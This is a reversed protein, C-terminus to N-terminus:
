EVKKGILVNTNGTVAAENGGGYVNGIINAGIVKHTRNAPNTESTPTEFVIDDGVASGINVHTNGIVEAANGGGYVNNIAGIGSTFPPLYISCTKDDIIRGNEDEVFGGNETRRFESFSLTKNGTHTNARAVETAQNTGFDEGECVNINVYTDGTVKASVGYGGGYVDGISTFSRLNLTPGQRETTSGAKLPGTYPAQNGGGYLQGITILHCGTEEINVTITGNITGSVNNGGFVRDFNGNTINLTVDNHIDANEAGGYANKLGPICAMDLRSEGDMNASKGGGYAEDVHFECSGIDELMTVAIQRVNGKTNSGGYVRHIRGGLIDVKAAGSGYGYNAARNEPTDTDGVINDVYEYFGVNAGPNDREVGNITIRDKGNGGGFVEEIEYTGLVEVWTGPTSAANGGGYVQRISTLDCGDIIVHTRGNVLDTPVYASLNGGGYVADLEYHHQEDDINDFNESTTRMHGAYGQTKQVHVTVAGKPTGNLNNCGFICGKVICDDPYSNTHTESDTEVTTNLNVFADGYVFAEIGPMYGDQGSTGSEIRGLGGGYVNGAITGHHLNVTTTALTSPPTAATNDVNTNALAGGGYVDQMVDGGNMNVEVSERIIGAEGGGFVSGKVMAGANINVLSERVSASYTTESLSGRPGGFVRGHNSDGDTGIVGGNINITAMGANTVGANASMYDTVGEIGAAGVSGLAGGGFVNRIVNGGKITISTTGRVIGAIPNHYETPDEGITYTDTGCGAGYVNGCEWSTGTHGVTGKNVVVVSNEFNHGNEGGGYVSGWVSPGADSDTSTSDGIVVNTNNVWALQNLYSYAGEGNPNGEWGRSSGNVMGADERNHGIFGGNITVNAQGTGSACATPMGSTNDRTFRGVSGVAGGGYVNHLIKTTETTGNIVVYTNGEIRGAGLDDISQVSLSAPTDGVADNIKGRGGGYVNGWRYGGKQQLGITGGNVTVHTDGVVASEEGGGYVSEHVVTNGNITLTVDGTVTGLTTLDETTYLIQNANDIGIASGQEWRYPVPEGKVGKRYTGLTEYYYPQVRYGASDVEAVPISASYGAGYVNGMVTCDNLTSTVSGDVKGLSGGGYFNRNITCGSLNSTVSHTTALSFMVFEVFLRAVNNVNNSMPLFQYDFFIPIGEFGATTADHKYDERVWNNWDINVVETKNHPASRSYSNGGYGAGFYTDFTTGTATTIVSKGDNMDGFKPGGCFQKIYGGEVVTTINGEVPHSANLGGAYFEDIDVNQLQWIINGTNNAGGANGIGEMAAGAAVGFRGGNVYCEANDAYNAVDGRYLGTLYFEEFDGGTVSVPPHKSKYTNDQHTGRHFEKFWVNGGVHFYTTLNKVNNSQGSVWQEIVGGQVIYPAAARNNRDYEFQTVRFLSTNTTEFWGIPQMIGFNYSGTGGVSKQAMGLGILNLFDYKLPHFQTRNDFRLIFSYDPENDADLDITTVTYPLTGNVAVIGSYQHYNGVLVVAYDNVTHATNPALATLADAISTYVTKSEGGISYSNGNTYIVGGGVNPVSIASTMNSNYVVDASADALFVAKAWYPEITISTVGKPVDFYAGQNFVRGSNSYNDKATSNRDAFNYPSSTIEGAANTTADDGTTFAKSGGSVTVKWGTVVRNGTYNGSGVENYYPLQVKYYNFNFHEPDKDTINLTLSSKTIHAGAPAAFQAGGSGMQVTVSLQGLKGGKNRETTTQANKADINVVSPYTGPVKLIPYPVSSGIQSPELVWKAMLARNDYSDTAWWAALDRHGNLMHRFFEFRQLFRREAMLACNYNVGTPQVYTADDIFYNYNGVGDTGANSIIQGNYIPAKSTGGTIDGYFMCNMVMTKVNASSTAVNNHGVIGGVEAGGTINAYSFCNIVRSSGDLLGVLGGVYNTGRITSSCSTIHTYGEANTTVTSNTAIIGCNYIRSDGIAENAIAGINGNGSISVNDLIIGNVRGGNISSFIPHDLDSIVPLYGDDKAVGKLEGTFPTTIIDSSSLSIDDTVKYNYNAGAGNVMMVFSDFDESTAIEYYGDTDQELDAIIRMEAVDSINYGEAIAIAKITFPLDSTSFSEEGSYLTGSTATPAAPNDGKTYRITVGSTPFNCEITFTTASTKRIVPTACSLMVPQSTGVSSNIWGDKVAIAKITKGSVNEIPGTYLIGTAPTPDSVEGFGINYYFTVDETSCALEVKGDGTMSFTPTAVKNVVLSAEESMDSGDSERVAVARITVTASSLEAVQIASGTWLTGTTQNLEGTGLTYYIRANAHQSTLVYGGDVASYTIEPPRCYVDELYFPANADGQVYLGIIGATNTYGTPGNAKGAEGKLSNYNGGNVTLWRRNNAGGVVGKPSIILYSDNNYPTISFLARDDLNEPDVSELHIRMRDANNTTRITGNSVIYKGDIKHKIYYYDETPHKTIIWVAKNADYVGDRCQYTTLFPQGNDTGTFDNTAQYYCWGETPCLYYNTSTNNANYGVSAIYYTGSYDTQARMSTTALM